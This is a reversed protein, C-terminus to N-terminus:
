QSDGKTAAEDHFRNPVAKTANVFSPGVSNAISDMVDDVHEGRKDAIAPIAVGLFVDFKVRAGSTGAGGARTKAKQFVLDADGSTFRKDVIGCDKMLKPTVYSALLIPLNRVCKILTTERFVYM